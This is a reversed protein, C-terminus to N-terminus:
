PSHLVTVASQAPQAATAASQAHAARRSRDLGNLKCTIGNRVTQLRALPESSTRSTSSYRPLLHIRRTAEPFGTVSIGLRTAHYHPRPAPPRSPRHRHLFRTGRDPYSAISNYRLKFSHTPIDLLRGTRQSFFHPSVLELDRSTWHQILLSVTFWLVEEVQSAVALAHASSAVLADAVAEAGCTSYCLGALANLRPVQFRIDADFPTSILITACRAHFTAPFQYEQVCIRGLLNYVGHKIQRNPSALLDYVIDSHIDFLSDTVQHIDSEFQPQLGCLRGELDQLVAVKTSQGVYRFRLYSMYVDLTEASLAASKSAQILKRAQRDYLVRMLPKAAAHLNITAGPPNRDSWWSHISTLTASQHLPPMLSPLLCSAHVAQHSLFSNIQCSSHCRRNM